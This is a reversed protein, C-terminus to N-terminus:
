RENEGYDVWGDAAAGHLKSVVKALDGGINTAKGTSGEDEVQTEGGRGQWMAIDDPSLPMWGM